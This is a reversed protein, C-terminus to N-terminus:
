KKRWDLDVDGGVDVAAPGLPKPARKMIREEREMDAFWEEASADEARQMQLSQIREVVDEDRALARWAVIARARNPYRDDLELVRVHPPDVDGRVLQEYSEGTHKLLAEILVHGAGKGLLHQTVLTRSVGLATATKEHTGYRENIEAVRARIRANQEDPLSRKSAMRAPYNRGDTLTAVSQGQERQANYSCPRSM